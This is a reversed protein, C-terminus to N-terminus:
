AETDPGARRTKGTTMADRGTGNPALAKPMDGVVGEGATRHPHQISVKVLCLVVFLVETGYAGKATVVLTGLTVQVWLDNVSTLVLRWFIPNVQRILREVYM